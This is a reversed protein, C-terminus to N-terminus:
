WTTPISTPSPISCCLSSRSIWLSTRVSIWIVALTARSTEKWLEQQYEWLLPMLPCVGFLLQAQELKQRMELLLLDLSVSVRVSFFVTGQSGYELWADVSLICCKVFCCELGGWYLLQVWEVQLIHEILGGSLIPSVAVTMEICLRYQISITHPVMCLSLCGGEVRGVCGQYVPWTKHHIQIQIWHFM